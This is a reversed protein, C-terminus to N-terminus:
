AAKRLRLSAAVVFIIWGVFGIAGVFALPSAHHVTVPALATSLALLAAGPVAIRGIVPRIMGTMVAARSLGFLAVAVFVSNVAFVANHLLYVVPVASALEAKDTAVLVAIEMAVMTAFLALIGAAGLAGARAWSRVRVTSHDLRAWLGGVFTTLCFAGLVFTVVLLSETARHDNYFKTIDAATADANPAASRIINQVLVLSIFGLGALGAIRGSRREAAEPADTTQNREITLTHTM